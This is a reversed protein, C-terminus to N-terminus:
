RRARHRPPTPGTSPRRLRARRGRGDAHDPRAVRAHGQRAQGRAPRDRHTAPPPASNDVTVAVGASTGINGAADSAEATVTHSGASATRTDWSAQFPPTTVPAGVAQGDVKFQVSTVGVNDSATAGLAIIGSVTTAAKPDTM